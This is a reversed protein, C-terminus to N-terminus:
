IHMAGMPFFREPWIRISSSSASESMNALADIVVHISKEPLQELEDRCEHPPCFARHRGTGVKAVTPIPWPGDANAADGLGCPTAECGCRLCAVCGKHLLQLFALHSPSKSCSLQYM